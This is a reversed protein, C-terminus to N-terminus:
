YDGGGGFDLPGKILTEQPRSIKKIQKFYDHQLWDEYSDGLIDGLITMELTEMGRLISESYWLSYLLIKNEPHGSTSSGFRFDVSEKFYQADVAQTADIGLVSKVSDTVRQLYGPFGNTGDMNILQLYFKGGKKRAIYLNTNVGRIPFFFSGPHVFIIILNTLNELKLARLGDLIFNEETSIVVETKVVPDTSLKIRFINELKPRLGETGRIKVYLKDSAHFFSMQSDVSEDPSINTRVQYSKNVNKWVEITGNEFPIEIEIARLEKILRTNHNNSEEGGKKTISGFIDFEMEKGLPTNTEFRTKMSEFESLLGHTYLPNFEEPNVTVLDINVDLNRIIIDKSNGSIQEEDIKATFVIAARTLLKLSEKTARDPKKPLLTGIREVAQKPFVPDTAVGNVKNLASYVIDVAYPYYANDINAINSRVETFNKEPENTYPVLNWDIKRELLVSSLRLLKADSPFYIKILLYYLPRLFYLLKLSLNSGEPDQKIMLLVLIGSTLAFNRHISWYFENKLQGLNESGSIESVNGDILLKGIGREFSFNFEASILGLVRDFWPEDPHAKKDRIAQFLPLILGYAQILTIEGLDPDENRKMTQMVGSIYLRNLRADSPDLQGLSFYPILDKQEM